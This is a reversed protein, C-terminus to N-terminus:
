ISTVSFNCIIWSEVLVIKIAANNAEMAEAVEMVKLPPPRLAPDPFVTFALAWNSKLPLVKVTVSVFVEV